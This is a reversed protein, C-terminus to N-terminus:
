DHLVWVKYECRVFRGNGHCCSYAIIGLCVIGNLGRHSVVQGRYFVSVNRFLDCNKGGFVM